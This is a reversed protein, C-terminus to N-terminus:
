CIIVVNLMYVLCLQCMNFANKFFIDSHEFFLPCDQNLKVARYLCNMVQLITTYGGANQEVLAHERRLFATVVSAALSSDAEMEHTISSMMADLKDIEPTIDENQYNFCM